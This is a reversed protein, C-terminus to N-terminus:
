VRDFGLGEMAGVLDNDRWGAPMEGIVRGQFMVLVRHCARLDDLEDSVILVGTGARWAREVVDLLTLKSRVDIGLSNLQETLYLSNTDLRFPTLLETGVAIIEATRVDAM